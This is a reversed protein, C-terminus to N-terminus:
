SYTNSPALKPPAVGNRPMANSSTVPGTTSCVAVASFPATGTLIAGGAGSSDRASAMPSRSTARKRAMAPLAGHRLV